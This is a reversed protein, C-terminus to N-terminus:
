NAHNRKLKNKTVKKISFLRSKGYSRQKKAGFLDKDTIYKAMGKPTKLFQMDYHNHKKKRFLEHFLTPNIRTTAIIVHYHKHFIEDGIDRIWVYGLRDIGKRQLKRTITHIFKTISNYEEQKVVGCLISHTKKVFYKKYTDFFLKVCTDRKYIKTQLDTTSRIEGTETNVFTKEYKATVPTQGNNDSSRSGESLNRYNRLIWSNM